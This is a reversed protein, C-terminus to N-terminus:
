KVFVKKVLEKQRDDVEHIECLADVAAMLGNFIYKDENKDFKASMFAKEIECLDEPSYGTADIQRKSEGEYYDMRVKGFFCVDFWAATRGQWFVKDLKRVVKIRNFGAVINGVGCASTSEFKLTDNLYAAILFSISQQFQKKNKM